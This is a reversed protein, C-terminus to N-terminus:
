DEDSLPEYQASLLPAPESNRQSAATEEKTVATTLPASVVPKSPTPSRANAATMAHVSLASFPYAYTSSTPPVFPSSSSSSTVASTNFVVLKNLENDQQKATEEPVMDGPSDSREKSSTSGSGPGVGGSGVMTTTKEETDKDESTRMVEVIRNKVYDLPSLHSPKDPYYRGGWQEPPSVPEHFSKSAGPQSQAIRIIQREDGKESHTERPQESEKPPVGSRRLKWNLQDGLPIGESPVHYQLPYSGRNFDKTIISEIHEGLTLPKGSSERETPSPIRKMPSVKGNTEVHQPPGDRHFGQFLRDGPRTAPGQNQSNQSGTESSSQNIQHTIIADILSAATMTSDDGRNSQSGSNSQNRSPQSPSDSNPRSIRDRQFGGVLIRTAERDREERESSARQQADLFAALQQQHRQKEYDLRSQQQQQQQEIRANELRIQEMRSKNEYDLRAQQELRQQRTEYEIRAQQQRQIQIQQQMQMQERERERERAAQFRQEQAFREREHNQRALRQQDGLRQQDVSLRGGVENGSVRSPHDIIRSSSLSDVMTKGLGEHHAERHSMMSKESSHTRKEVSPVPLSPQQVAAEVLSSFAEHGPPPYHSKGASNGGSPPRSQGQSTPITNHRQIVGQRLPPPTSSDVPSRSPLYMGGPPSNYYLPSSIGVGGRPSPSDQKESGSIAVRRQGHMQQSTIYDSMIIQRSSLQQEIPYSTPQRAPNSPYPSSFGSSTSSQSPSSGYPYSSSVPQGPNSPSPNGAPSSRKFYEYNLPQRKDSPGLHSGHHVPTGQTISGGEKHTQQPPIQRLLGEYRPGGQLPTGHTISGGKAGPPGSVLKPSLKSQITPLPSKAIKAHPQRAHSMVLHPTVSSSSFVSPSKSLTRNQDSVPHSHHYYHQEGVRPYVSTGGKCLPPMNFHHSPSNQYGSSCDRKKISLDLTEPEPERREKLAQQVQVVVIGEKPLDSSQNVISPSLSEQSRDHSNVISLTALSDSGSRKVFALDRHDTKLISSITPPASCSVSVGPTKMLSKEIVNAMLDKVTRPPSSIPGNQQQSHHHHHHQGGPPVATISTGPLHPYTNEGDGGGQGEDATETASSDYDKEPRPECTVTTEPPRLMVEKGAPGISEAGRGPSCASATDSSDHPGPPMEDCSSTSSGSEEEDTVAPKRDEGLHAKNYEQVLLDLGLKKRCNFYFSKCQHHTKTGVKDAVQTWSTGHEKLGRKLADTEEETWRLTEEESAVHPALRRSIRNFCASCCKTVNPPIQFEAIIPDKLEASLESWKSPLGRLRKVRGKANPCTPIPCTTCRSRVAKCRCTNCVRGGPPIDDESLGYESAHSRPLPRSHTFTEIIAKCVVCPHSGGKDGPM